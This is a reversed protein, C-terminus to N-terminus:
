KFWAKFYEVQRGNGQNAELWGTEKIRTAFDERLDIAEGLNLNMGTWDLEKPILDLIASFLTGAHKDRANVKFWAKFYEVQRGNGQNAALWGTEKIRKSFDERLDIAEGLNLNMKTWNLEKPILDSIASFLTGAHKNRANAKFWSKFYEVQRGNRQNAELWRTKKIRKAFDKRLDIAEGLNLNMKTWDLEKPILDSIVSFLMGAHKDRANAKFWSKFYAVQRGNRQNAELWRTKKIRKAFDERLDIVEGLNLDMKTWDLKKPILDSIARFLMGAHKDRSVTGFIKEYFRIQGRNGQYQDTEGAQIAEKAHFRLVEADMWTTTINKVRKAYRSKLLQYTRTQSSVGKFRTITILGFRHALELDRALKIAGDFFQYPSDAAFPNNLYSLDIRGFETEVAPPIKDPSIITEGKEMEGLYEGLHASLSREPAGIVDKIKADIASILDGNKLDRIKITGLTALAQAVTGLRLESRLIEETRGALSRIESRAAPPPLESMPKGLYHWNLFENLRKEDGGRIVKEKLFDSLVSLLHNAYKELVKVPGFFEYDYDGEPVTRRLQKIQLFKHFIQGWNEEKTDGVEKEVKKPVSRSDTLAAQSSTHFRGQSKNQPFWYRRIKQNAQRAESRIPLKATSVAANEAGAGSSVRYLFNTLTRDIDGAFGEGSGLLEAHPFAERFDPWLLNNQKIVESYLDVLLYGTQLNLLQKIKQIWMRINGQVSSRPGVLDVLTILDFEGERQGYKTFDFTGLEACRVPINIREGRGRKRLEENISDQLFMNDYLAYPDKNLMVVKKGLLALLLPLYSSANGAVMVKHIAPYKLLTIAITEARSINASNWGGIDAAALVKVAEGLELSVSEALTEQQRLVKETIGTQIELFVQDSSSKDGIPLHHQQTLKESGRVESRSGTLPHEQSHFIKDLNPSEWMVPKKEKRLLQLLTRVQSDTIRYGPDQIMAFAEQLFSDQAEPPLGLPLFGNRLYFIINEGPDGFATDQVQSEHLFYKSPHYQSNLIQLFLRYIPVSLNKGQFKPLIKFAVGLQRPGYLFSSFGYGVIKEHLVSLILDNKVVDDYQSLRPIKIMRLTEGPNFDFDHYRFLDPNVKDLDVPAATGTEKFIVKFATLLEQAKANSLEQFIAPKSTRSQGLLNGWWRDIVEDSRMESRLSAAATVKKIYNLVIYQSKRTFLDSQGAIPSAMKMIEEWDPMSISTGALQNRFERELREAERYTKIYHARRWEWREPSNWKRMVEDIRRKDQPQIYQSSNRRGMVYDANAKNVAIGLSRIFRAAQEGYKKQSEASYDSRFNHNRFVGKSELNLQHKSALEQISGNRSTGLARGLYEHSIPIASFDSDESRLRRITRDLYAEVTKAQNPFKVGAIALRRLDIREKQATKQIMGRKLHVGTLAELKSQLQHAKIMKFRPSKSAFRMETERDSALAALLEISLEKTGDVGLSQTPSIQIQTKPKSFIIPRIAAALDKRGLRAAYELLVSRIRRDQEPTLIRFLFWLFKNNGTGARAGEIDVLGAEAFAKLHKGFMKASRDPVFRRLSAIQVWEGVFYRQLFDYTLYLDLNILTSDKERLAKSQSDMLFPERPLAFVEEGLILREIQDRAYDLDEKYFCESLVFDLVDELEPRILIRSYTLKRTSRGSHKQLLNLDHLKSIQTVVTRFNVIRNRRQFEKLTFRQGVAFNKANKWAGLLTKAKRAQEVRLESRLVQEMKKALLSDYKGPYEAAVRAWALMQSRALEFPEESLIRLEPYARSAKAAKNSIGGEGQGRGLPSPFDFRSGRRKELPSSYLAPNELRRSRMDLMQNRAMLDRYMKQHRESLHTIMPLVTECTVDKKALMELIGAKHFGGFVLVAIKEDPDKLFKELSDRIVQDRKGAMEYFQIAVQISQKWRKSILVPERLMQASFDALDQTKFDRLEKVVKEYSQSDLEITCLKQFLKLTKLVSYIRLLDKQDRFFVLVIEQELLELEQTIKKLDDPFIAENDEPSRAIVDNRTRRRDNQASRFIEPYVGHLLRSNGDLSLSSRALDIPVQRLYGPLDLKGNEYLEQARMWERFKKPFKEAAIRFYISQIEDLDKQIAPSLKTSKRYAEINERHLKFSDAGILRFNSPLPSLSSPLTKNKRGEEKERRGEQKRTIHAYEAGGLRLHDMLFYAVKERIKPDKIEGFYKDTPVPGEYGEEFVTKVGEKEVFHRILKAISEQAELSDHADQIYIIKKDGTSQVYEDVKGLERPVAIILSPSAYSINQSLSFSLLLFFATVKLRFQPKSHFLTM